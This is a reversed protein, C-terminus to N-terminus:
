YKKYLVAMMKVSDPSSINLGKPTSGTFTKFDRILHTQDYYGSLQAIHRWNLDPRVEKLSFANGFRVLKSFLRPSMGLRELSLRELQRTSKCAYGAMSEVTMNGKQELLEGMAADFPTEERISAALKFLFREIIVLIEANNKAEMLKLETEKLSNGFIYTADIDVNVVERGPIGLLRQFVGPKFTIGVVHREKGFDVIDNGLKPGVFYARTHTHFDQDTENKVLLPHESLPFFLHTNNMWPFRYIPSIPLVSFDIHMVGILGIM